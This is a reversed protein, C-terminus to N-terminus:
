NQLRKKAWYAINSGEKNNPDYFPCQEDEALISNRDQTALFELIDKPTNKNQALSCLVIDVAFEYKNDKVIEFIRKLVDGTSNSNVALYALPNGWWQNMACGYCDLPDDSQSIVDLFGSIVDPAIESEYGSNLTFCLFHVDESLIKTVEGLFERDQFLDGVEVLEYVSMLEDSLATSEGHDNFYEKELKRADEFFEIWDPYEGEHILGVRDEFSEKLALAEPTAPPPSYPPSPKFDPDFLDDFITGTLDDGEENTRGKDASESM